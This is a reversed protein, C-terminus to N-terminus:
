FKYPFVSSGLCGFCDQPLLISSSSYHEKVESKVVFSYYDFYYPVPMFVSMYILPVSLGSILGCTYPWNIWSLHPLFICHPFSLRKLVHHKSFQVAVHLLILSSKKECWIYFYVLHIWSKFTPGSVMFSRSSFIPLICKSMLRLLINRSKEGWALSLVLFSCITSCCVLFTQLVFSVILLIFLCGVSHSFINSLPNIDLVYLASMYSLMLFVFLGILINASSKFLDKELSSMCIVLLCM